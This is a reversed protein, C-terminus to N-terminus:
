KIVPPSQVNMKLIWDVNQLLLPMGFHTAIEKFARLKAENQNVDILTKFEGACKCYMMM